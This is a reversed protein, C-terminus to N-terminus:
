ADVNITVTATDTEPSTNTATYTFTDAGEFGAPPDYTFSGDANLTVTGGQATAGAAIATAAPAPLGSDNTLVGTAAPVVLQTDVGTAYTDNRALPSMTISGPVLTTNADITDSFQVNTAPDGSNAVTVEYTIEDGPEAKGDAEPGDVFSDTKSATISPAFVAALAAPAATATLQQAEGAGTREPGAGAVAPAARMASANAALAVPALQGVLLLYALMTAIFARANRTGPTPTFHKM